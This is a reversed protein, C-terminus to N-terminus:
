FFLLSIHLSYSCFIFLWVFVIKRAALGVMKRLRWRGGHAAVLIPLAVLLLGVNGGQKPLM